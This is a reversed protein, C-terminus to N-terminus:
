HVHKTPRLMCPLWEVQVHGCGLWVGVAAATEAAASMNATFPFGLSGEPWPEM